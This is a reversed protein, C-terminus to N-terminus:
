RDRWLRSLETEDEAAHGGYLAGDNWMAMRFADESVFEARGFIRGHPEGYYAFFRFPSGSPPCTGHVARGADTELALTLQASNM